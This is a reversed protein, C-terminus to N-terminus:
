PKHVATHPRPKLQVPMSHSLVSSEVLLFGLLTLASSNYIVLSPCFFFCTLLM